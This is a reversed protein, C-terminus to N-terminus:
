EELKYAIVNRSIRKDRLLNRLAMGLQEEDYEEVRMKPHNRIHWELMQLTVGGTLPTFADLIDLITAELRKVTGM